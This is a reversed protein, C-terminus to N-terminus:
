GLFIAAGQCLHNFVFPKELPKAALGASKWKGGRNGPFLLSTREGFRGATPERLSTGAGFRGQVMALGIAYRRIIRM